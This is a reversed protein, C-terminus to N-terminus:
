VEIRFSSAVGDAVALGELTPVLHGARFEALREVPDPSVGVISYGAALLSDHRDRLDCAQTTCGPTFAKPYFYILLRSGAFDGLSVAAGTDDILAFDPARDGAALPM